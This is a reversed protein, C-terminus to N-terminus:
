CLFVAPANLGRSRPIQPSVGRTKHWPRVYDTLQYFDITNTESLSSLNFAGSGIAIWFVDDIDHARVDTVQLEYDICDTELLFSPSSLEM